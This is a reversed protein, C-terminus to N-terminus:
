SYTMENKAMSVNLHSLHIKNAAKKKNKAFYDPFYKVSWMNCIYISILRWQKHKRSQYVLLPSESLDAYIDMHRKIMIDKDFLM